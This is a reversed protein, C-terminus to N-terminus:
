NALRGPNKRFNIPLLKNNERDRLTSPTDPFTPIEVAGLKKLNEIQAATLGQAATINMNEYPRDVQLSGVPQWSSWEWFCITEDASASAMSGDLPNIAVDWVWNTHKPISQLCEGTRADWVCVQRDSGGNVLWQGCASYALALVWGGPYNIELLIEGTQMNWIKIRNDQGATAVQQGDPHLAVAILRDTHGAFTDLCQESQVDWVKATQDESVSVLYRGCASFELDRVKDQHGTFCALCENQLPQWLRITTDSSGSALLQGDPSFVLANISDTHGSMTHSCVALQNALNWVKITKDDSGSVVMPLSPHWAVTRIIQLHGTLEQTCKQSTIKWIRVIRDNHGSVLYQGQPQYAIALVWNLWGQIVQLCQGDRTDWLRITQDDSGTALRDGQPHYAVSWVQDTHGQIVQQCLGSNTEWLRITGDDGTSAIQQGDPSFAASWIWGTHGTFIQLCDGTQRDWLRLTRDLAASLIKHGDPSFIVVFIWGQHGSMERDGHGALDWLRVINDAGGSVLQQGDPSFSARCAWGQHAPFEQCVQWTRTDWIQLHGDALATVLRQGTPCFKADLTFRQRQITRQSTGTQTDWIRVTLDDSTSALLQGNPSFAVRRVWNQHGSLTQHCQSDQLRWLQIQGNANSAALLQGDPSFEANLVASFPQTFLTNQFDAQSFDTNQLNSGVLNAQWIPLQSCDLYNLDSQQAQLLNLLNGPAYAPFLQTPQQLQQLLSRMTQSWLEPHPGLQQHLRALIPQLLLRGQTQRIYSHSHSKILALQCLYQPQGTVIEDAIQEIFHATIFEMVVPQLYWGAPSQEALSRRKLAQMTLLLQPLQHVQGPNIDTALTEISVPLRNVMLWGMVIQETPSIRALQQQLIDNIDTFKLQGTQLYPLLSSVDGNLLEQISAAVIKLALPNGGYHELITGLDRCDAAQFGRDIFIAQGAPLNLGPVSLSRVAALTAENAAVQQPKERSTLLICSHHQVEALKKLLDQYDEYGPLYTGVATGPRLISELNDLIILCRQQKLLSLLEAIQAPIDPSNRVIPQPSLNQILDVLLDAALPANLLSRWLVADFSHHHQQALKVALSTKGIGGMGLIAVLRCRDQVIWQSLTDLELQRGYFASVDIAEGWDPSPSATPRVPQQRHVCQSLVAKLNQKKVKEGLLQSLLQWLQAGIDKIYGYDYDYANAIQIYSKGAWAQRLVVEQVNNLQLNGLVQKTFDVAEEETMPVKLQGSVSM